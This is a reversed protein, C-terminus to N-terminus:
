FKYSLGITVTRGSHVYLLTDDRGTDKGYRVPQDSLNSGELTLNLHRDLHWTLSLDYYTAPDTYTFDAGQVDGLAANVARSKYSMSVRGSLRRDEYYLTLNFANHSLGPFDGRVTRGENAPTAPNDLATIYEVSSTIHTVNALVGLNRWAGPLFTFPQQYSIELGDIPGGATNIARTVNFASTPTSLCPNAGGGLTCAGNNTLLSDPLGLTDYPLLASFNQVFSAIRKHFLGLSLLSDRAFYWEGQLDLTDARVPALAPNGINLTQVTTNITLSPALQVYEPRSLVKAASVRLLLNHPLSLTLNLSPLVDKYHTRASVPTTVGAVSAAGAALLDTRVLRVGADGRLGVEEGFVDGFTWNFNGLAYVAAIRERIDRPPPIAAPLAGPVAACGCDINYVKLLKDLDIATWQHTSVTDLGKGFGAIQRTVDALTVGAPLSVPAGAPAYELNRWDNDRAELGAKLSLHPGAEYVADAGATRLRTATVLTRGLWTGHITGDPAAGSDLYFTKPNTVDVGYTLWPVNPNRRFDWSFGDVNPVDLDVTTREPEDLRSENAGLRVDLRLRDGVDHHGSLVWQGFTTTYKDRLGESRLDAGDLRGYIWSGDPAFQAATISSYPKGSAALNRGNSIMELYNDYRTNRFKGFMLGLNAATAASPRWQLALTAGLREYDTLSRRYRPLRPAFAGSGPTTPAWADVRSFVANYATPDSTRAIGAACNLADTGRAPNTVPNQPVYGAPSCFGGDQGGAPLVDVAEYGEEEVTRKSWALSALAGFTGGFPGAWSNSVLAAFRPHNGGELDNHMSQLTVAAHPGPKDLPQATRLDVTAGLSGDEIDASSTKRVEIAKFLESAFVSFDFARGRNTSGQIDSAGTATTAEIGDIRVRTFSGQLGRVTIQRGEGGDARTLTVGPIRQISEALNADPFKAIDEAVIADVIGNGRKKLGLASQLSTRYNAIVIITTDDDAAAAPPPEAPTGAKATAAATAPPQSKVASILIVGSETTRWTLGTGALLRTMADAATYRGRLAHSTRTAVVAPDYLVPTNSAAGFANLAAGLNEAPIDFGHLPNQACAMGAALWAAAACLSTTLWLRV